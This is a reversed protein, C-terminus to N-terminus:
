KKNLILIKHRGKAFCLKLNKIIFDIRLKGIMM